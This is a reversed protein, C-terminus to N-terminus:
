SQHRLRRAITTSRTSSRVPFREHVAWCWCWKEWWVRWVNEAWLDREGGVSRVNVPIKEKHVVEGVVVSRAHEANRGNGMRPVTGAAKREHRALSLCLRRRGRWLVGALPLVDEVCDAQLSDILGSFLKEDHGPSGQQTWEDRTCRSSDRIRRPCVVPDIRAM